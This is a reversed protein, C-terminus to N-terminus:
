FFIWVFDYKWTIIELFGFIYYLDWFKNIGNRVSIKPENKQSGQNPNWNSYSTLGLYLHHYMNFDEDKRLRYIHIKSGM